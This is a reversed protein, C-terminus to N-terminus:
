RKRNLEGGLLSKLLFAQAILADMGDATIQESPLDQLLSIVEGFDNMALLQRSFTFLFAACIYIHIDLCNNEKAIDFTETTALDVVEGGRRTSSTFLHATDGKGRGGKGGGLHSPSQGPPSISSGSSSSVPAPGGAEMRHSPSDLGVGPMRVRVKPCNKMGKPEIGGKSGPSGLPIANPGVARKKKMQEGEKELGEKGKVWGLEKRRKEEEEEMTRGERDASDASGGGEVGEHLSLYADFLRLVQWPQLERSLLCTMWRYAYQSTEIGLSSLHHYLLPDARQILADLQDMMHLFGEQQQTFHGQVLDLIYSALWYADPELANAWVVEPIAEVSLAADLEAPSMSLLTAVSGTAPCAYQSLVVAIFPIVLDHMGQWYGSAPHRLAWCFLLRELMAMVRPHRLFHNPLSSSSSSSPSCFPCPGKKANEEHMSSRSTDVVVAATGGANQHHPHPHRYQQELHKEVHFASPSLPPSVGEHHAPTLSHIIQKKELKDRNEAETQPSPLIPDPIECRPSLLSCPSSLLEEPLGTVGAITMRRRYLVPPSSASSFASTGDQGPSGNSLNDTTASTISPTYSPSGVMNEEESTTSSSNCSTTPTAASAEGERADRETKSRQTGEGREQREKGEEEPSPIYEEYQIITNRRRRPVGFHSTMEDGSTTWRKRTKKKKVEGKERSSDTPSSSKSSSNHNNFTFTRMGENEEDAAEEKDKRRHEEVGGNDNEMKAIERKEKNGERMGHAEEEGEKEEQKDIHGNRRRVSATAGEGMLLGSGPSSVPSIPVMPSALPSSSPFSYAAIREQNEKDDTGTTSTSTSPPPTHKPRNAEVGVVGATHAAGVPSESSFTSANACIEATSGRGCYSCFPFSVTAPSSLPVAAGATTPGPAAGPMKGFKSRKLDKRIQQLIKGERSQPDNGCRLPASYPSRTPTQSASIDGIGIVGPSINSVASPTPNITAAAPTAATLPINKERGPSSLSTTTPSFTTHIMLKRSNKQGNTGRREIGNEEKTGEQEKDKKQNSGGTRKEEDIKRRSKGTTRPSDQLSSDEDYSSYSYSFFSSSSTSYSFSTSDLSDSTYFSSSLSSSSLSSTALAVGSPTCGGEQELLVTLPPVSPPSPFPPRPHVTATGEAATEATADVHKQAQPQPPHSPNFHRKTMPSSSISRFSSGALAGSLPEQVLGEGAEGNHAFMQWNGGNGGAKSPSRSPSPPVFNFKDHLFLRSQYGGTQVFFSSVIATYEKRKRRVELPPPFMCFYYHAYSSSPPSSSPSSLAPSSPWFSSSFSSAGGHWPSSSSFSFPSISPSSLKGPSSLLYYPSSPMAGDLYGGRGVRRQGWGTVGDGSGGYRMGGGGPSLPRDDFSSSSVPPPPPPLISRFANGFLGCPLFSLIGRSQMALPYYGTLIRWVAPRYGEPCGRCWSWEQLEKMNVPRAPLPPPPPSLVSTEGDEGRLSAGLAVANGNRLSSTGGALSVPITGRWQPTGKNKNSTATHVEVGERERGAVKLKTKEEDIGVQRSDKVGKIDTNKHEVIKKRKEEEGVPEGEEEKSLGRMNEERTEGLLLKRTGSTKGNYNGNGSSGGSFPGCGEEEANKRSPFSSSSSTSSHPSRQPEGGGGGSAGGEFAATAAITFAKRLAQLLSPPLLMREFAHILELRTNELVMKREEAWLEEETLLQNDKKSEKEIKKKEPAPSPFADSPTSLRSDGGGGGRKNVDLVSSSSCSVTFSSLSLSSSSSSSPPPLPSHSHYHDRHNVADHNVGLAILRPDTSSSSSSCSPSICNGQTHGGHSPSPSPPFCSSLSHDSHQEEREREKRGTEKKKKDSAGTSSSSTRVGDRFLGSFLTQFGGLFDSSSPPPPPPLVASLPSTSDGCNYFISAFSSFLSSSHPSSTSSLVPAHFNSSKLSEERSKAPVVVDGSRCDQSNRFPLTSRLQLLDSKESSKTWTRSTTTTTTSSASVRRTTTNSENNKKEREPNSKM